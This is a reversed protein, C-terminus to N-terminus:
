ENPTSLQSKVVTKFIHLKKGCKDEFEIVVYRGKLRDGNVIDTLKDRLFNAYHVGERTIFDERVLDSIHGLQTEIGDVSTGIVKNAHIAISQYTKVGVSSVQFKVTTNYKTGYFNNRNILDNHVYAKGDKFSFLDTFLSVASDPIYSRFSVWKNIAENFVITSESDDKEVTPKLVKVTVKSIVVNANSFIRVKDYSTTNLIGEKLGVTTEQPQTNDGGGSIKLYGDSISEIVFSYEYQKNPQINFKKLDLYGENCKIHTARNTLPDISWDRGNVVEPILQISIPNNEVQKYIM